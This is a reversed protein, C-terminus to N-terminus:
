NNGGAKSIKYSKKKTIKTIIYSQSDTIKFMKIEKKM